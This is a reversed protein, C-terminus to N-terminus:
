HYDVVEIVVVQKGLVIGVVKRYARVLDRGFRPLRFDLEVV